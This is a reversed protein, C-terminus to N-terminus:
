IGLPNNGQGTKPAGIVTGATNLKTELNGTLIKGEAAIRTLVASLSKLPLSGDLVKNTDQTIQTPIEAGGTALLSAVRAKLSAYTSDFTAQQENSLQNRIDALKINAYKVDYPNITTGDPAKMTSLLFNGFQDVNQITKKLDLYSEYTNKYTDAAANVPTVGSTTTNAQKADFSGQLTATNAKPDLKLIAQNLAGQFTPVNGGLAYAQAPSIQHSIVQSAISDINNIPNLAPNSNTGNTGAELPSYQTQGQAGVTPAVASALSSLGQAETLLQTGKVGRNREIQGSLGLGLGGTYNPNNEVDSQEQRTDAQYEGAQKYAKLAADVLGPYTTKGSNETQTPPTSILGLQPQPSPKTSETNNVPAHYTTEISTGDPHNVVTSKVPTSPSVLPPLSPKPSGSLASGYPSITPPNVRISSLLSNPTAGNSGFSTGLSAM